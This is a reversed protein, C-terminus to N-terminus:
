SAWSSPGRRSTTAVPASPSCCRDSAVAAGMPARDPAPPGRSRVTIELHPAVSVVDIALGGIAITRGVPPVTAGRIVHGDPALVIGVDIRRRLTLVTGAMTKTGRRAVLVDIREVGESRLRDLLRGPDGDDVVLM